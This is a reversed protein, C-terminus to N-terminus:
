LKFSLRELAAAWLAFEVDTYTRRDVESRPGTTSLRSWRFSIAVPVFSGVTFPSCVPCLLSLLLLCYSIAQVGSHVVFSM